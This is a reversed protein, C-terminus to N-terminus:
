TKVAAVILKNNLPAARLARDFLRAAARQLPGWRILSRLYHATPFSLESRLSVTVDAFRSLLARMDRPRFIQKHCFPTASYQMGMTATRTGRTVFATVEGLRYLVGDRNPTDILLVGGPALLRYAAAITERPDNVHEIVDWMTIADYRESDDTLAELPEERVAFSRARAIRALRPDVEIGEVAWGATEAEALFAGAGCGVDLLRGPKPATNLLACNRAIRERNSELGPAVADSGQWTELLAGAASTDDLYDIFHFGCGTCELLDCPETNRGLHYYRRTEGACMKCTTLAATLIDERM